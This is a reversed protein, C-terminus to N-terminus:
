RIPWRVLYMRYCHAKCYNLHHIFTHLMVSSPPSCGAYHNGRYLLVGWTCVFARDRQVRCWGFRSLEIPARSYTFWIFDGVARSIIEACRKFFYGNQYRDNSFKLHHLRATSLILPFWIVNTNLNLCMFLLERVYPTVLQLPVSVHLVNSEHLSHDAATTGARRLSDVKWWSFCSSM